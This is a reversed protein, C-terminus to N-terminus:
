SLCARLKLLARRIRSKVTGLPQSSREALTPYSLGEFFARRILDAEDPRLEGLCAAVRAEDERVELWAAPDAGPDSLQGAAEISLMTRGGRARQRDIARNRAIAALWTLPNAREPDYSAANRWVSVYADQLAEEAEVREPLIRLCIAFLKASTRRYVDELARRDGAAVRGLAFVLARRRREDDDLDVTGSM